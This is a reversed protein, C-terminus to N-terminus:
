SFVTRNAYTQMVVQTTLIFWDDHLSLVLKDGLESLKNGPNKSSTKSESIFIKKARRFLMVMM